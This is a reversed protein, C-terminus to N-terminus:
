HRCSITQFAVRLLEVAAINPLAGRTPFIPPVPRPWDCRAPRGHAAPRGSSPLVTSNSVPIPANKSGAHALAVAHLFAARASRNAARLRTECSSMSTTTSLWRCKSMGAAQQRCPAFPTLRFQQEGVRGEEDTGCCQCRAQVRM